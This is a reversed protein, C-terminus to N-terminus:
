LPGEFKAFPDCDEPKFTRKAKPTRVAPDDDAGVDKVKVSSRLEKMLSDAESTSIPVPKNRDSDPICAALEKDLKVPPERYEGEPPCEERPPPSPIAKPPRSMPMTYEPAGVDHGKRPEGAPIVDDLVREVDAQRVPEDAIAQAMLPDPESEAAAPLEIRAGSKPPPADYTRIVEVVELGMLADSWYRKAHRSVARWLLMDLPWKAYTDRNRGTTLGATVAEAHTFTDFKPLTEPRRLSRVWGRAQDGEGETGVELSECNKHARILGLAAKGTWGANGGVVYISQVSAMPGLGAEAGTQVAIFIKAPSDLSKPAIGSAHVTECFRYADALNTLKVGGRGVAVDKLAVMENREQNSM